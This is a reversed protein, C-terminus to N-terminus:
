EAYPLGRDGNMYRLEDILLKQSNLMILPQHYSHCSICPSGVKGNGPRANHCKQCTAVGPLLIDEAKKSERTGVHCQTCQVATHVGHSFIAAPMWRGPVNAPDVSFNSKGAGEANIEHVTHCLQCGTKAFVTKEADRARQTAIQQEFARKLDTVHEEEGPRKRANPDADPAEALLLKAYEAYLFPFVVDPAGHPVEVNPLDDDFGLAHCDQCDRKFSIAEFQKKDIRLHHCSSCTLNRDVTRSRIPGKLHVEHNFKLTSAFTPRPNADLPVRSAAVGKDTLATIVSFEPHRKFSFVPRRKGFGLQLEERSHCSVCLRDNPRTTGQKGEHEGHCDVCKGPNPTVHVQKYRALPVHSSMRHCEKCASDQVRSFPKTHCVTCNNEFMRHPNSLEGSSWRQVAHGTLPEIFGLLLVLFIALLSLSLYSPYFRTLDLKQAAKELRDKALASKREDRIEHLGWFTKDFFVTFTAEGLQLVDGPKLASKRTTRRNVRIKSDEGVAEVIFKEGELYLKAHIISISRDELRVNCNLSRGVTAVDCVFMRSSADHRGTIDIREIKHRFKM